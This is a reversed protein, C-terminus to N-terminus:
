SAAGGNQSVLFALTEEEAAATVRSLIEAHQDSNPSLIAYVKAFYEPDSSVYELMTLVEDDSFEARKALWEFTNVSEIMLATNIDEFLIDKASINDEEAILLSVDDDAIAMRIADNSLIGPNFLSLCYQHLPMFYNIEPLGDVHDIWAEFESGSLKAVLKPLDHPVVEVLSLIQEHDCRNWAQQFDDSLNDLSKYGQDIKEQYDPCENFEELGSLEKELEPTEGDSIEDLFSGCRRSLIQDAIGMVNTVLINFNTQDM